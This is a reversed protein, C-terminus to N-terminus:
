SVEFIFAMDDGGFSVRDGIRLAYYNGPRLRIDNIYTGYRSGLDKIYYVGLKLRLKAHIHSVIKSHIFRELNIDPPKKSNPRGIYISHSSQPLKIKKNTRIHRLRVVNLGRIYIPYKFPNDLRALDYNM